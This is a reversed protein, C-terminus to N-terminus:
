HQPALAPVTRGRLGQGRRGKSCLLRSRGHEALLIAGLSVPETDHTLVTEPEPGDKGKWRERTEEKAVVRSQPAGGQVRTKHYAGEVFPRLARREDCDFLPPSSKSARSKIRQLIVKPGAM